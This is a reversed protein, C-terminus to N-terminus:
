GQLTRLIRSLQARDHESLVGFYAESEADRAKRIAAGAKAGSATASVITARRDQPDQNREVMGRSELADVVETTSRAAIGLHETLESLRMPGHQIVITLARWQSPAIDWPALTQRWRGRLGRTVAWFSESLTEDDAM